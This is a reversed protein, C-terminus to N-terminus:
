TGKQTLLFETRSSSRQQEAWWATRTEDLDKCRPNDTNTHMPIPPSRPSTAKRDVHLSPHTFNVTKDVDSGVEDELDEAERESGKSFTNGTGLRVRFEEPSGTARVVSVNHCAPNHRSSGHLLWVHRSGGEGKGCGARRYGLASNVPNSKAQWAGGTVLSEDNKSRYRSRALVLQAKGAPGHARHVGEEYLLHRVRRKPSAAPSFGPSRTRSM